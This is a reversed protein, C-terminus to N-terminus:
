VTPGYTAIVTGTTMPVSDVLRLAAYGGDDDFM